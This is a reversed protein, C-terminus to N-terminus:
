NLNTSGFLDITVKVLDDLTLLDETPIIIGFDSLKINFEASVHLLNGTLGQNGRTVPKEEIYTLYVKINGMRKTVGHLTLEGVATLSIEENNKLQYGSPESAGEMTFVATPFNAIDLYNESKLLEDRVPSSTKLNALSIEFSATPRIYGSPPIIEPETEETSDAAPEAVEEVAEAETAGEPTEEDTELTAELEEAELVAQVLMVSDLWIEAKGSIGTVMGVITGLPARTDFRAVSEVMLVDGELNQGFYFVTTEPQVPEEAAVGSQALVLSNAMLFVLVALLLNKRM